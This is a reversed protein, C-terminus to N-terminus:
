PRAYSCPLQTADSEGAADLSRVSVFARGALGGLYLSAQYRVGSASQPSECNAVNYLRDPFHDGDDPVQRCELNDLLKAGAFNDEQLSARRIEQTDDSYLHVILGADALNPQRCVFELRQALALVPSCLTFAFFLKKM